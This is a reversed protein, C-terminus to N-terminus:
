SGETHEPACRHEENNLFLLQCDPCFWRKKLPQGYRASVERAIGYHSLLDPRNTTIEFDLLTGAGNPAAEMGEVNLGVLPLDRALEEASGAAVYDKLWELLVKM